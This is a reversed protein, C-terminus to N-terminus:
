ITVMKMQHLEYILYSLSQILRNSESLCILKSKASSLAIKTQIQSQWFVPYRAIFLVFGRRFQVTDPEDQAHKKDWTGCFEADLNTVHITM